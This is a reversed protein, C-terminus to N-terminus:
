FFEVKEISGDLDSAEALITVKKGVIFEARDSPSIISVLPSINSNTSVIVFLEDSDSYSGNSVTLKV